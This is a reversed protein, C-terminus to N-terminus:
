RPSWPSCISPPPGIEYCSGFAKEPLSPTHRRWRVRLAKQEPLGWRAKWPRTKCRLSFEVKASQPSGLPQTPVTGATVVLISGGYM